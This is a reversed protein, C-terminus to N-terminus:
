SARNAHGARALAPRMVEAEWARAAVQWRGDRGSRLITGVNLSYWPEGRGPLYIYGPSSSAAPDYGYYLVYALQAERDGFFQVYFSVECLRLRTQPKAVVVSSADLFAGGWPGFQFGLAVTDVIEIPRALGDCTLTILVTKGKAWAALPNTVSALLLTLVLVIPAEHVAGIPASSQDNFV